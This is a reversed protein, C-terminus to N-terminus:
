RRRFQNVDHYSYTGDNERALRKTWYSDTNSLPSGKGFEVVCIRCRGSNRKRIDGLDAATMWPEGADTLFFIVDPKLRLAELLAEKHRTGGSPQVSRIHQAARNRNAETGRFMSTRQGSTPMPHLDENYFIIQFEQEEEVQLLSAQLETKAVQISNNEYMSASADLVFAFRTGRQGGGGFFSVSAPGPQGSGGPSTGASKRSTASGRPRTFERAGVGATPVPAAADPAKTGTDTTPRRPIDLPIPPQDDVPPPEVLDGPAVADSIDQSDTAQPSPPASLDEGATTEERDAQSARTTIGITRFEGEGAGRPAVPRIFAMLLLYLVGHVVVSLLWSPLRRIGLSPSEERFRSRTAVDM